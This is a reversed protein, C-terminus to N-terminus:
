STVPEKINREQSYISSAKGGEHHCLLEQQQHEYSLLQEVLLFLYKLTRYAHLLIYLLILTPKPLHNILVTHRNLGSSQSPVGSFSHTTYVICVIAPEMYFWM